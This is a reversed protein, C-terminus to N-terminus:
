QENIIRQYEQFAEEDSLIDQEQTDPSLGQLTQNDIDFFEGARTRETSDRLEDITNFGFRQAAALLNDRLTDEADKSANKFRGEQLKIGPLLRALRNAEQESIAVGSIEKMEGVVYKGTIVDLAVQRNKESGGFGLNERVKLSFPTAPGTSVSGVKLLDELSDVGFEVSFEDLIREQEDIDLTKIYDGGEQIARINVLDQQMELFGVISAYEKEGSGQFLKNGFGAAQRAAIIEDLQGVTINADTNFKTTVTQNAAKNKPDNFAQTIEALFEPDRAFRRLADTADGKTLLGNSIQALLADKEARKPDIGEPAVATAGRHRSLWGAVEDVGEQMTAFGEVGETGLRDFQGINGPNNNRAGLGQTAFSSDGQMIAMMRECAVGHKESANAVMQGTVESGPAVSQIYNDMQEISTMQGMNTLISNIKDEHQPDTAYRTIDFEQLFPNVKGTIVGGGQTPTTGFGDGLGSVTGTAENVFGFLPDGFEDTGIRTFKGVEGGATPANKAFLNTADDLSQSKGFDSLVGADPTRGASLMAEIYDMKLGQISKQTGKLDTLETQQNQLDLQIGALYRAEDGAVQPALINIKAITANYQAEKDTFMLDVARNAAEQSSQLQGQMALLDSQIFAADATLANKQLLYMRYNKAQAGRLLSLTSHRGEEQNNALNFSATLANIENSKRRLEATKSNLNKIQGEINRKEEESLQVGGRGTLADPDLSGILATLTKSDETEPPEEILQKQLKDIEKQSDSITSNFGGSVTDAVFEDVVESEGINIPPEFSMTSSSIVQDDVQEGLTSGAKLLDNAEASGTAVVRAEGTPSTLTAPQRFFLRGQADPSTIFNGFDAEDIGAATLEERRTQLDAENSIQIGQSLSDDQFGAAQIPQNAEIPPVVAVPSDVPAIPPVEGTPAPKFGFSQFNALEEPTTATVTKGAANIFQGLNQEAM